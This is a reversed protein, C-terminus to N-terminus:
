FLSPVFAIQTKGQHAYIMISGGACQFKVGGSQATRACSQANTKYWGDVVDVSDSTETVLPVGSKIASAPVESLSRAAPYMPLKGNFQQAIAGSVVFAGAALFSFQVLRNM